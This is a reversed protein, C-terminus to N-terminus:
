AVGRLKVYVAEGPKIICLLVESGPLALPQLTENRHFNKNVEGMEM